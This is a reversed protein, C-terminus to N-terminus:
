KMATTSSANDPFSGLNRFIDIWALDNLLTFSFHSGDKDVPDNDGDEDNEGTGAEEHQGAIIDSLFAKDPDM